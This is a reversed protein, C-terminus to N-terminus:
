HSTPDPKSCPCPVEVEHHGCGLYEDRSECAGEPDSCCILNQSPPPDAKGPSSWYALAAVAAVAAVITFRVRM